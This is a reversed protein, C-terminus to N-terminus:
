VGYIDGCSSWIYEEEKEVFGARLPNFHIYDMENLFFEKTLIKKAHYGEEWFWLYGDKKLLWLLRSRRSERENNEICSIIEKATFKKFDRIVDSLNVKSSGVILPRHYTKIVWAYGHFPIKM